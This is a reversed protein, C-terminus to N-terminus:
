VPITYEVLMKHICSIALDLNLAIEGLASSGSDDKMKLVIGEKAHAILRIAEEGSAATLVNIYGSRILIDKLVSCTLQEDDVLLIGEEFNKLTKNVIM